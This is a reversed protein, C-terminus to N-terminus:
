GLQFKDLSTKDGVAMTTANPVIRKNLGTLVDKAGLEVFHTISQSAMYEISKVWQVSSTLQTVLDHRIEDVSTLPRATVNSIVPITPTQMPTAMVARQLREAARRMLESHAAISVALPLARKAGREKALVLARELNAKAGSIVIQGPANYNAIQVHGVEACIMELAADEVQVGEQTCVEKLRAVTEKVPIRRHKESYLIDIIGICFLIAGGAVMFDGILIGFGRNIDGNSAGAERSFCHGDGKFQFSAHDVLFLDAQLISHSVM